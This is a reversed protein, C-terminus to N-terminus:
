NLLGFRSKKEKTEGGKDVSRPGDGKRGEFGGRFATKNRSKSTMRNKKRKEEKPNRRREPVQSKRLKRLGKGRHSGLLRDKRPDM